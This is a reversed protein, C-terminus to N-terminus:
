IRSQLREQDALKLFETGKDLAIVTDGLQTQLFKANNRLRRAIQGLVRRERSIEGLRRIAQDRNGLAVDRLGIFFRLRNLPEARGDQDRGDRETQEAGDHDNPQIHPAADDRSQGREAAAHQCNGLAIKRCVYRGSAAVLDRFHASDDLDQALVRQFAVLQQYLPCLRGVRSSFCTSSRVASNAWDTLSNRASPSTLWATLEVISKCVTSDVIM